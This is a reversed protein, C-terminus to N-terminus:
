KRALIYITKENTFRGDAHMRQLARGKEIIDEHDGSDSLLDIYQDVTKLMSKVIEFEEEEDYQEIDEFTEVPKLNVPATIQLIQERTYTEGHFIGRARDVEAWWHHLHRQANEATIEPCQFVEGVVFLGGPKLVRKMENLVPEPQELHHLSHRIAVTDFHNDDFDLKAADMVMFELGSEANDKATQVREPNTDVGIAQKFDGFAETLEKLFDGHGTAVDLIKGGNLYKLRELLNKLLTDKRHTIEVGRTGPSNLAM